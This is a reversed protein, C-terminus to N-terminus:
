GSSTITSVICVTQTKSSAIQSSHAPQDACAINNVTQVEATCTPESYDGPALLTFVNSRMLPNGTTNIVQCWYKGLLSPSYPQNLFVVDHYSSTRDRNLQFVPGGLGLDKVAGTTNERFWRISYNASAGVARRVTCELSVLITGNQYPNCCQLTTSPPQTLYEFSCQGSLLM